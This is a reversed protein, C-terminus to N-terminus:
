RCNSEFLFINVLLLVRYAYFQWHNWRKEPGRVRGGGRLASCHCTIVDCGRWVTTASLQTAQRQTANSPLLTSQDILPFDSEIRSWRDASDLDCTFIVHDSSARQNASRHYELIYIISRFFTISEDIMVVFSPDICSDIPWCTACVLNTSQLLPCTPGTRQPRPAM